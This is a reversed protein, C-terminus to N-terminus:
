FATLLKTFGTRCGLYLRNRAIVEIAFIAKRSRHESFADLLKLVGDPTDEGDADM